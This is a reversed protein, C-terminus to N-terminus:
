SVKLDAIVSSLIDAMSDISYYQMCRTRAKMGQANAAELHQFIWEIKAAIQEPSSPEVLYGTDGLIEPIDGVFTSIIPKAMAMGDTLKLPFQAQTAPHDRQPVVIIHAAAVVEPMMSVPFKPLKVIWKEWQQILQNDYDDYPSGGVIVLRLDPQNLHDLAMLVDELGKYPRPAGPFMLIRYGSLGYKARSEEPDYRDPDFLSIDKGNPLSVGGFRKQLFSNHTTVTDAYSVLGEIWKLYLSHDPNRLAGDPKLIDRALQKLTPRYQWQEGGHWSLEWDDIDLIVPCRSKFKKILAIGFSSPKLKYAYIIDGSINKLITNISTFFKPYKYGNISITPIESDPIEESSEHPVFGIIEVDYNLKKLAQYLLFPRDAGVGWRGSGSSSLDSVVLSIKPKQNSQAL